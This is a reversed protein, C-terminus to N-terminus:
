EYFEVSGTNIDYMAGIIKIEGNKEMETISIENVLEFTICTDDTFPISGNYDEPNLSVIIKKNTEYTNKCQFIFGDDYHGYSGAVVLAHYDNSVPNM